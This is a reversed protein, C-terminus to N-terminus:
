THGLHPLKRRNAQIGAVHRVARHSIQWVGALRLPVEVVAKRVPMVM